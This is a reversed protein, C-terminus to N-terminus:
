VFKQLSHGISKYGLIKLLDKLKFWINGDIDFIILIFNDNVQLIKDFINMFFDNDINSM